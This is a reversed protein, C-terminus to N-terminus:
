YNTTLRKNRVKFAFEKIFLLLNERGYTVYVKIWSTAYDHGGPYRLRHLSKSFPSLNQTWVKIAPLGNERRWLRRARDQREGRRWYLPYRQAKGLIFHGSRPTWWRGGDLLPSVCSPLKVEVGKRRRWHMNSSSNQRSTQGEEYRMTNTKGEWLGLALARWTWLRICERGTIDGM